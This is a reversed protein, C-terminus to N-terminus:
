RTYMNCIEDYINKLQAQFRKTNIEYEKAGYELNIMSDSNYSLLTKRIKDANVLTLNSTSIYHLYEKALLIFRSIKIYVMENKHSSFLSIINNEIERIFYIASQQLDYNMYFNRFEFLAPDRTIFDTIHYFEASKKFISVIETCLLADSSITPKASIPLKHIKQFQNLLSWYFDKAIDTHLDIINEDNISVFNKQLNKWNSNVRSEFFEIFGNENIIGNPFYDKTNCNRHGNGSKLWSKATEDIVKIKAGSAQFLECIIEHQSRCSCYPQITIIYDRFTM